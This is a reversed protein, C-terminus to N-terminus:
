RFGNRRMREEDDEGIYSGYTFFLIVAASVEAVTDYMDYREKEKRYVFGMPIYRSFAANLNTDTRPIQRHM